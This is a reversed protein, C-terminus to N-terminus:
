SFVLVQEHPCVCLDLHSCKIYRILYLLCRHKRWVDTKIWADKTRIDKLKFLRSGSKAIRRMATELAVKFAAYVPGGDTENTGKDTLWHVAPEHERMIELAEKFLVEPERFRRPHVDCSWHTTTSCVPCVFRYTGAQMCRHIIHICPVERGQFLPKAYFIYLLVERARQHSPHLGEAKCYLYWYYRLSTPYNCFVKNLM